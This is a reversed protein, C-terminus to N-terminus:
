LDPFEESVLPTRFLNRCGMAFVQFDLMEKMHFKQVVYWYSVHRSAHSEKKVMSLKSDGAIWVQSILM